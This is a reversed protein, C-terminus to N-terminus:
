SAHKKVSEYQEKESELIYRLFWAIGGMFMASEFAKDIKEGEKKSM